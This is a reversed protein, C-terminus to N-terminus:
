VAAVLVGINTVEVPADGVAVRDGDVVVVVRKALLVCFTLNLFVLYSMITVGEM